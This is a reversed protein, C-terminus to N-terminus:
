VVGHGVLSATVGHNGHATLFSLLERPYAENPDLTPTLLRWVGVTEGELVPSWHALFAGIAAAELKRPDLARLPEAEPTALETGCSGCSLRYHAMRFAGEALAAQRDAKEKRVRADAKQKADPQAWIEEVEPVEEDEGTSCLHLRHSGHTQLWAWFVELEHPRIGLASLPEYLSRFTPMEGWGPVDQAGADLSPSGVYGGDGVAPAYERCDLCVVSCSVSM